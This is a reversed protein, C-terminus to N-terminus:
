ILLCLSIQKAAWLGVPDVLKTITPSAALAGSVRYLQLSWPPSSPALHPAFCISISLLLHQLVFYPICLV